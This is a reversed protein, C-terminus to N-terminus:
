GQSNIVGRFFQFGGFVIAGWFIFGINSLTLVTGGVCWLAGYLMDKQARSKKAEVIQQELNTVVIRASESDLGENILMNQVEYGTKGSHVLLHAARNYVATVAQDTTQTTETEM